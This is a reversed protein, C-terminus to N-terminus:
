VSPVSTSKTKTKKITKAKSMMKAKKRMKKKLEKVETMKSNLGELAEFCVAKQHKAALEPTVYSTKLNEKLFNIDPLPCRLEHALKYKIDDQTSLLGSLAYNANEIEDNRDHLDLDAELAAKQFWNENLRIKKARYLTVDLESALKVRERLANKLHVSDIPFVPLDQERQLNKCLRRYLFADKPDVMLVALGSESARATRGSRHIYTEVTKPVQYHIVHEIGKIDLGRAAVDTALLVGFESATFRELNKLRQRQIMNSNLIMPSLKLHGLIGYLRRSADLSNTFILTRGKYRNLLYVVNLDKDLLDDCNIRTEVLRKPTVSNNTIDIVARQSRLGIENILYEIKQETTMNRTQTAPLVYTLTASFVLMQLKDEAAAKSKSRILNLMLKLEKFHGQEVMRDTEDIVVCQVDELQTLYECKGSTMLDWLRGPTAVIVEPKKKSMVRLQKQEALGGVVCAVKIQTFACMSIAVKKIQIALERTPAIILAKPGNSEGDSALIRAIVPIVFALTKGSGTEAAGLVDVRNRISNLLTSEQIESPKHFKEKKIADMIEQPLFFKDWESYDGDDEEQSSQPAVPEDLDDEEEEEGEKSDESPVSKKVKKQKQSVAQDDSKKEDTELRRKKNPVEETTVGDSSVKAMQRKLKRNLKKKERRRLIRAKKAVEQKETKKEETKNEETSEVKEGEAESSKAGEDKDVKNKKDNKKKNKKNKTNESKESKKEERETGKQTDNENKQSKVDKGRGKSKKEVYGEPVFEEFGVLYAFNEDKFDGQVDVSSFQEEKPLAIIPM